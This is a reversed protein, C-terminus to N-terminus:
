QKVEVVQVQGGCGRAHVMAAKVAVVAVLGAAEVDSMVSPFPGSAAPFGWGQGARRFEAYLAGLAIEGGSGIAAYPEQMVEAGGTGDIYWIYGDCVALMGSGANWGGDTTMGLGETRLSHAWQRALMKVSRWESPVFLEPNIPWIGDLMDAFREVYDRTGFGTVVGRKTVRIKGPSRSKIYDREMQSDTAVVISGDAARVAVAVTM